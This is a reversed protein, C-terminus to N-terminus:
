PKPQVRRRRPPRGSPSAKGRRKSQRPLKVTLTESIGVLKTRRVVEYRVEVRGSEYNGLAENNLYQVQRPGDRGEVKGITTYFTNQGWRLKLHDGFWLKSSRPINIYIGMHLQAETLADADGGTIYPASFVPAPNPYFHPNEAAGQGSPPEAILHEYLPVSSKGAPKKLNKSATNAIPDKKDKKDKNSEDPPSQLTPQIDMDDEM